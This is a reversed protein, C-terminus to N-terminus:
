RWVQPKFLDSELIECSAFANKRRRGNVDFDKEGGLRRDNLTTKWANGCLKLRQPCGLRSPISSLRYRTSPQM